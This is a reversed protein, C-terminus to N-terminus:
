LFGFPCNLISLGSLSAVNTVCSGPRLCCPRWWFVPPSGLHDRLILLEKKKYSVRWTYTIRQIWYNHFFFNLCYHNDFGGIDVFHVMVEWRLVGFVFISWWRGDWCVLCLFSGDGGMEVCWVCFHVMVEWRLVGFVFISWWRGDWCMLCLFPGDGGMEVCWVCFPGDGGM